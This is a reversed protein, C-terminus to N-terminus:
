EIPRRKGPLIALVERERFEGEGAVGHADKIGVTKRDGSERMGELQTQNISGKEERFPPEGGKGGERVGSDLATKEFFSTEGGTVQLGGRFRRRRAQSGSGSRWTGCDTGDDPGPWSYSERTTAREQERALSPRPSLAM